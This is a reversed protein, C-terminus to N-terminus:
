RATHPIAGAGLVKFEISAKAMAPNYRALVKFASTQGPLLPEYDLFGTDSSVFVGAADKFTAVAQVRRLPLSTDNTVQGIFTVYSSSSQSWSAGPELILHALVATPQPTAPIANSNSASQAAAENKRPTATEGGGLNGFVILGIIVIAVWSWGKAYWPRLAKM